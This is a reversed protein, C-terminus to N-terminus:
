VFAPKQDEPLDLSKLISKLEKYSTEEILDTNIQLQHSKTRITYNLYTKEISTIDDFKIKRNWGGYLFNKQITQNEIILYQHKFDYLFISLLLVGCATYIYDFVNFEGNIVPIVAGIILWLVGIFLNLYYKKKKFKIKTM